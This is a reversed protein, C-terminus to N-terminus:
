RSWCTALPDFATGTATKNSNEDIVLINCEPDIQTTNNPTAILSYSTASVAGSVTVTYYGDASNAPLGISAADAYTPNSARYKEQDLVFTLLAAKGDARKSRTVYDSYAPIAIAAIIAIIAVVIMLEILTFGKLKKMPLNTRNM